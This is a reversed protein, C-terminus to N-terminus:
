YGGGEGMGRLVRWGGSIYTYAHVHTYMSVHIRIRMYSYAYVFVRDIYPAQTYTCGGGWGGHFPGSAGTCTGMLVALAELSPFKFRGAKFRCRRNYMRMNIILACKRENKWKVFVEANVAGDVLHVLGQGHLM